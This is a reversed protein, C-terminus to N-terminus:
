SNCREFNKNDHINGIIKCSYETIGLWTSLRVGHVHFVGDQFVVEGCQKDKWSVNLIDGEYISNGDVDEMGTYECVTDPHVHYYKLTKPMGWDTFHDVSVFLIQNEHPENFCYNPTIDSPVGYVWQNTIKDKAKFM